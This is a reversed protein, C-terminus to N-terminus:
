RNEEAKEIKVEFACDVEHWVREQEESDPQPEEIILGHLKLRMKEKREPRELRYCQTLSGDANYVFNFGVDQEDADADMDYAHVEVRYLRQYGEERYVDYGTKGMDGDEGTLWGYPEELEYDYGIVMAREEKPIFDVAVLLMNGDYYAERVSIAFEETETSGLDSQIQEEIQKKIGGIGPYDLISYRSAIALATVCLTLMLVVALVAGATWKRKMGMEGKIKARVSARDEQSFALVSLGRELADRLRREDM